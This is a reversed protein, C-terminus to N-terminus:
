LTSKFCAKAIKPNRPRFNHEGKLEELTLGFPLAGENWISLRDDYVRLQIHAGQCTRHAIANLLM